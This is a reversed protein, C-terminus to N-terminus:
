KGCRRCRPTSKAAGTLMLVIALIAIVMRVPGKMMPSLSESQGMLLVCSNLLLGISLLPSVQRDDKEPDIGSQRSKLEIIKNKTKITANALVVAFALIICAFVWGITAGNLGAIIEIFLCILEIITCVKFMKLIKSYHEISSELDTYLQFEGKSTLKRLMIWYGWSQVIEIEAENMFERYDETVSGFKEGFDIQYRWKGKETQEFKYFGAFFGTMAWGEDAMKNLWKTEADKDWYLKFKIM